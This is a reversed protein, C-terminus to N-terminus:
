RPRVPVAGSSCGGEEGDVKESGDLVFGEATDAVVVYTNMNEIKKDKDTQEDLAWPCQVPRSKM